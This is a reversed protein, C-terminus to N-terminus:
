RQMKGMKATTDQRGQQNRFGVDCRCHGSGVDVALDLSEDPSHELRRGIGWRVELPKGSARGVEDVAGSEALRQWIAGALNEDLVALVKNLVARAELQSGRSTYAIGM